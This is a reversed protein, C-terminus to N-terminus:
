CEDKGGHQDCVHGRRAHMYQKVEDYSVPTLRNPDVGVDMLRMGDFPQQLTGHSHGHLMWSGHHMWNWSLMPFHCLVIRQVGRPADQDPIKLEAYHEVQHFFGRVAEKQGLERDHNGLIWHKHGNLRELIDVTKEVGAFSLDGLHFVDDDPGVTQNWADVLVDNMAEVSDFRRFKLANRHWFHTDSTFFITM